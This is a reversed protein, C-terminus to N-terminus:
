ESSFNPLPAPLHHHPHWSCHGMWMEKEEDWPVHGVLEHPMEQYLGAGSSDLELAAGVLWVETLWGQRGVTEPRDRSGQQLKQRTVKTMSAAPFHVTVGKRQATTGESPWIGKQKQGAGHPGTVTIPPIVVILLPQQTFAM